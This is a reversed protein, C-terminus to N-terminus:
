LSAQTIAAKMDQVAQKLGVFVSDAILAHGINLEHIHAIRAIAAVNDLNLGHGANVILNPAAYAVADIIRQLERQQQEGHADAYAGTHLEIVPAGCMIAADIQRPDADIFLSVECGAATLKQTAAKIKQLQGAVDLGGETTLEERKEPVLCM